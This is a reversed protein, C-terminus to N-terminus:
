VVRGFYLRAQYRFAVRGDTAHREFIRGLDKVFAAHDPHGLNPAYSSSLARGILGELDFRQENPVAVIEVPMPAFFAAIRAEDLHRHSVYAYDTGHRQLVGEYDRLFPTTDSERENWVLGIGGGPRLLRVFERRARPPDFWHFAQAATVLDVSSDPLPIAEAPAALSEFKPEGRFRTEAEARMADNPEVAYVHGCVPLLLATFIGTGAGVDAVVSTSTLGARERLAEILAPPYGPRYRVYNGVRDTFRQTVDSM